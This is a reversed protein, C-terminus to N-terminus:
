DGSPPQKDISGAMLIAALQESYDPQDPNFPNVTILHGVIYGDVIIARTAAKFTPHRPQITINLKEM